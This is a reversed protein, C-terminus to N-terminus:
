DRVRGRRELVGGEVAVRLAEERSHADLKEIVIQVHGRATPVSISLRDALERSTLGEALLMLVERERPTLSGIREQVERRRDAQTREHRLADALREPPLLVEGGAVRRIADALESVDTLKSLYAAAGAQVSEVFAEDSTDASLMVVDVAPEAARLRRVAEAGTGDPLHFDVLAVQPRIRPLAAVAEAVTAATGAVHIDGELELAARLGDVLVRHDDVILVDIM